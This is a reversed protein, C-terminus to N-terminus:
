IIKILNRLIDKENKLRKRDTLYAVSTILTYFSTRKLRWMNIFM